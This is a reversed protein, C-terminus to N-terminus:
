KLRGVSAPAERGFPAFFRRHRAFHLPPPRCRSPVLISSKLPALRDVVIKM